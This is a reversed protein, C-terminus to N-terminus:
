LLNLATIGTSESLGEVNYALLRSYTLADDKSDNIVSAYLYQLYDSVPQMDKRSISIALIDMNKMWYDNLNDIRQKLNEDLADTTLITTYIESTENEMKDFVKQTFIGDWVCLAGVALFIILMPIFTKM